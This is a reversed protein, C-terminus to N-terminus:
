NFIIIIEVIEATKLSFSKNMTMYVGLEYLVALIEKVICSLPMTAIM